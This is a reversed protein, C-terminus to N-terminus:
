HAKKIYNKEELPEIVKKYFKDSNFTELSAQAISVLKENLFHDFLCDRRTYRLADLYSITIDLIKESGSNRKCYDILNKLVDNEIESVLLKKEQQFQYYQKDMIDNQCSGGIIEKLIAKDYGTNLLAARELSPNCFLWLKLQEPEAKLNSVFSAKALSRLRDNDYYNVLRKAILYNKWNHNLRVFGISPSSDYILLRKKAKEIYDKYVKSTEEQMKELYLQEILILNKLHSLTVEDNVEPEKNGVIDLSDIDLYKPYGDLKNYCDIIQTQIRDIREFFENAKIFELM